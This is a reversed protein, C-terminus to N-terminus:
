SKQNERYQQAGIGIGSITGFKTFNGKKGTKMMFNVYSM